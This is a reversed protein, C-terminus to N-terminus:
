YWLLITCFIESCKFSSIKCFMIFTVAAEQIIKLRESNEILHVSIDSPALDTIKMFTKLIDACLLGRGPGLEVYTFPKPAGLALWQHYAWIGLTEGFLSTIEPSTIFHGHKGLPNQSYFGFEPHSLCVKMYESVSIPGSFDIKQAFHKGLANFLVRSVRM